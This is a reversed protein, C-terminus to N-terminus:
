VRALMGDRLNYQLSALYSIMWLNRLNRLHPLLPATARGDPLADDGSVLMARLAGQVSARGSPRAVAGTMYDM